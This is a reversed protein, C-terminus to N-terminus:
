ILCYLCQLLCVPFHGWSGAECGKHLKRRNLTSLVLSMNRVRLTHPGPSPTHTYHLHSSTTTYVGALWCVQGREMAPMSSALRQSSPAATVGTPPTWKATSQPCCSPAPTRPGLLLCHCGVGTRQGPFDWPCLLRTPQLGHTALLQVRSLSKM